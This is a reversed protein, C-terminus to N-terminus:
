TAKEGSPVLSADADPSVVTLSQSKDVSLGSKVQSPWLPHTRKTENEGSPFVNALPPISM